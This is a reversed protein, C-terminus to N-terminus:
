ASNMNRACKIRPSGKVAASFSWSVLNDDSLRAMHAMTTYVSAPRTNTRTAAEPPPLTTAVASCDFGPSASAGASVSASKQSTSNGWAKSAITSDEAPKPTPRAANARTRSHVAANRCSPESGNGPSGSTKRIFTSNSQRSHPGMHSSPASGAANRTKPRPPRKNNRPSSPPAVSTISSSTTAANGARAPAVQGCHRLPDRNWTTETFPTQEPSAWNNASSSLTETPRACSVM